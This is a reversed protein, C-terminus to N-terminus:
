ESVGGMGLIRKALVDEIPMVSLRSIRVLPCNAFADEAKITALSVPVPLRRKAAIDAVVLKGSPDRSDARPAGAIEALGVISKEAGTHYVFVRDGKKMNRLHILAQANSVGDWTTRKDRVLDDFSYEDPDSKILWFSM